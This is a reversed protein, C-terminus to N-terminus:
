RDERMDRRCEADSMAREAQYEGVVEWCAQEIDDEHMCMITDFLGDHVNSPLYIDKVGILELGNIEVQAPCGPYHRTMKEEPTADFDIEFELELAITAKM